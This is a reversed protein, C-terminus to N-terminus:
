ELSKQKQGRWSGNGIVRLVRTQAQVVGGINNRIGSTLSILLNCFREDDYYLM